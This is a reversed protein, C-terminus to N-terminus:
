FHEHKHRHHRFNKILTGHTQSLKQETLVKNPPGQCLMKKNLCIAQTAFRYIIDLDHSVFIVTLGRKGSLKSILNYITEEGGLDVGSSPEDLLILDPDNIIALAVLVRQLEGGSLVGLTKDFTTSAGVEQLSDKIKQDFKNSLFGLGLRLRFFEKVLIPTTRDFNFYQPVYDIKVGYGVTIQGTYPHLNLISKILTTKGGGNPGVIALIEGRFLDFSVNNILTQGNIRVTLNKVQLIKPTEDNM